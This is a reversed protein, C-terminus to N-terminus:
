QFSAVTIAVFDPKVYWYFWFNCRDYFLNSHRLARSRLLGDVFNWFAAFFLDFNSSSMTQCFKAVSVVQLGYLYGHITVFHGYDIEFVIKHSGTDPEEPPMMKACIDLTFHSCFQFIWHSKICTCSSELERAHSCFWHSLSAKCIIAQCVERKPWIQRSFKFM